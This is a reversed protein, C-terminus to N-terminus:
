ALSSSSSILERAGRERLYLSVVGRSVATWKRPPRRCPTSQLRLPVHTRSAAMFASLPTGAVRNAYVSSALVTARASTSLSARSLTFVYLFKLGSTYAM